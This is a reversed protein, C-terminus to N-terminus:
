EGLHAQCADELIPVKKRGAIELIADLDCANGGLHVPM